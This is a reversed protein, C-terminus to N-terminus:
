SIWKQWQVWLGYCAAIIFGSLSLWLFISWIVGPTLRSDMRRYRLYVAVGGLMPLTLAQAVGGITVMLAPDSILLFLVLGLLPLVVCFIGVMKTRHERDRLPVLKEVHLFDATIRSNGATAAFLTSYLVIMGGITIFIMAGKSGMVPAYMSGLTPIMKEVSNMTKMKAELEAPSLGPEYLTAGLFYFAITAVTYVAMSIWADVYMVKLWGKARREWESTQETPGVDRAYGKELCWYPYAVLESGGVGTIGIMAFAAGVAMPPLSFTLGSQVKAWTVADPTWQLLIVSVITMLTFLVVMATLFREILRYSGRVLLAITILTVICAWLATPGGLGTLASLTYGTGGIMTGIQNQSCLTMLLWWWTFIAGVKPIDRFMRLTTKGSSLAYRGLEIQVFVKIFCSILVLWLLTFGARMGLITTAILEGTGVISAALIMGPGTQKLIAGLTEPPEAIAEPSRQYPDFTTESM